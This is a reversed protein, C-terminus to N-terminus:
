RFNTTGPQIKFCAHLWYLSATDSFFLDSNMWESLASLGLSGYLARKLMHEKFHVRPFHLSPAFCPWNCKNM